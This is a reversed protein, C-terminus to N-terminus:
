WAGPGRPWAGIGLLSWGRRGAAGQLEAMLRVHFENLPTGALQASLVFGVPCGRTPDNVRGTVRFGQRPVSVLLGEAELGKLARWMTKMDVSHSRGLERVPPLFEGVGPSGSELLRRVLRAASAAAPGLNNGAEASM